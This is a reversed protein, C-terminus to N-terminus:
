KRGKERSQKWLAFLLFGLVVIGGILHPLHAMVWNPKQRTASADLASSTLDREVRLEYELNFESFQGSNSKGSIHIEYVDKQPFTFSFSASRSNVDNSGSFLPQNSIEKGSSDSISIICNCDEPKFKDEKDKFEFYFDSQQGAIPDDDPSVHMVAGVSGSSELVHALVNVPLILYGAAFGFFLIEKSLALLPRTIM